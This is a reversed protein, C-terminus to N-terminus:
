ESEAAPFSLRAGVGIELYDDGFAVRMAERTADGTCHCPGVRQVDLERLDHIVQEIEAQGMRAMHFGGLVAHIQGHSSRQASRALEVVGPHACGTVVVIGEASEVYLAQEVLPRELVDTTWIGATVRQSQETEVVTHARAKLDRIYDFSFAAPAYVTAEPSAELVADLGGVHDWHMHSLVVAHIEAFDIGLKGMNELLIQGSGGTDFLVAQAGTRVICAFGHATRLGKGLPYNDYVVILEVTGM